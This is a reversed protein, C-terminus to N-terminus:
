VFKSVTQGFKELYKKEIKEMVVEKSIIMVTCFNKLYHQEM